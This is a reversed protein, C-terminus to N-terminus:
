ESEKENILKLLVAVAKESFVADNINADVKIV